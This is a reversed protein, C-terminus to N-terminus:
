KSNRPFGYYDDNIINPFREILCTKDSKQASEGPVWRRSDATVLDVGAFLQEAFEEINNSEPLKGSLGTLVIDDDVGAGNTGNVVSPMNGESKCDSIFLM